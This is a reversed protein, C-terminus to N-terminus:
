KALNIHIIAREEEEKKKKVRLQLLFYIFWLAGTHEPRYLNTSKSLFKDHKM